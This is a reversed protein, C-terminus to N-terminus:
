FFDQNKLYQVVYIGIYWLALIGLVVVIIPVLIVVIMISLLKECFNDVTRKSVKFHDIFFQILRDVFKEIM